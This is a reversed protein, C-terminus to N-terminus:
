LGFEVRVGSSFEVGTPNGSSSFAYQFHWATGPLISSGPSSSLDLNVTRVGMADPLEAGSARFVSGGVCFLGAAVLSSTAESGAFFIGFSTSPLGSAVLELQNAGPSLSGQATASVGSPGGDCYQVVRGPERSLNDLFIFSTAGPSSSGRRLRLQAMGTAPFGFPYAAAMDAGEFIVVGDQYIRM